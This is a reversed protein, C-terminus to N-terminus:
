GPGDKVVPGNGKGSERKRRELIARAGDLITDVVLDPPPDPREMETRAGKGTRLLITYLGARKGALIDRPADGMCYSRALDIGLDEAAMSFLGTKPKRCDCDAGPAHPCIYIADIRGAGREVLRLLHRHIEELTEESYLGRGIGSQNTAIIISFGARHLLRIAELVGPLLEFEEVSKVFDPRDRNIVGDRDLFVAEGM